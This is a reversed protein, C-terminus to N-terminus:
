EHSVQSSNERQRESKNLTEYDDVPWQLQFIEPAQWCSGLQCSHM